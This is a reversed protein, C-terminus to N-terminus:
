SAAEPELEFGQEEHPELACIRFVCRNAGEQFRQERVVRVGLLRALMNVTTSCVAPQKLAVNLFPCNHEILRWDGQEHELDAFPDGELYLDKLRRLKDELSLGELRQRWPAIRREAIDSLVAKLEGDGPLESVAELLMVALGDYDKPFLHQGARTLHYLTAPRGAQGGRRPQAERSVWGDHIMENIQIRVAERSIGLRAALAALTLADGRKLQLAIEQKTHGLVDYSM